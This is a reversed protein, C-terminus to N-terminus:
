NQAQIIERISLRSYSMSVLWYMYFGLLVANIQRGSFQLPSFLSCTGWAGGVMWELTPSSVGVASQLLQRESESFLDWPSLRRGWAAPPSLWVSRGRAVSWPSQLWMLPLVALSSFPWLVPNCSLGYMGGCPGQSSLKILRFVLFFNRKKLQFVCSHFVPISDAPCKEYSIHTQGEVSETIPEIKSPLNVFFM